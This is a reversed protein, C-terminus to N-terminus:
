NSKKQKENDFNLNPKMASVTEEDPIETKPKEPQKPGQLMRPQNLTIWELYQPDNRRLWEITKGAYKGSRLTFSDDM